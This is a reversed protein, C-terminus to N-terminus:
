FPAKKSSLNTCLATLCRNEGVCFSKIAIFRKWNEAAANLLRLLLVEWWPLIILGSCFLMVDELTYFIKGLKLAFVVFLFSFLVLLLVMLVWNRIKDAMKRAVIFADAAEQNPTFIVIGESLENIVEFSSNYPFQACFVKFLQKSDMHYLKFIISKWRYWLEFVFLYLQKRNYKPAFCYVIEAFNIM